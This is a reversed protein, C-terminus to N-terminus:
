RDDGDGMLVNRKKRSKLKELNIDAVVSLDVNLYGALAAVYFLVDGLEKVVGDEDLNNRDRISKKIKEAVEGAEGVLGLTNELLRDRGSTIILKEVEQQYYNLAMTDLLYQEYHDTTNWNDVEEQTLMEYDGELERFYNVLSERM